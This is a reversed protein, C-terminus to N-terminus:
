VDDDGTVDVASQAQEPKDTTAEATSAGPWNLKGEAYDAANEVPDPLLVRKNYKPRAAAHSHGKQFSYQVDFDIKGGIESLEEFVKSWDKNSWEAHMRSEFDFGLYGLIRLMEKFKHSVHFPFFLKEKRREGNIEAVTKCEFIIQENHNQSKGVEASILRLTHTAKDSGEPIFKIGGGQDEHADKVMNTINSYDPTFKDAM